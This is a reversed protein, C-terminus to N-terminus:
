RKKYEVCRNTNSIKITNLKCLANVCYKCDKMNCNVIM